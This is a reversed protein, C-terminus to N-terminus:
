EVYGLSRLREMVDAPTDPVITEGDSLPAYAEVEIPANARLYEEDFAAEIVEGELERSLPLGMWYLATPAVDLLSAREVWANSQVGPGKMLFVGKPDHAGSFYRAFFFDDTQRTKGYIVIQPNLRLPSDPHATLSFQTRVTLAGGEQVVDFVADGNQFRIESLADALLPLPQEGGPKADILWRREIFQHTVDSSFGLLRLLKEAQIFYQGPLAADAKMGHDSVLIARCDRPLRELIRGFARDAAIYYEEIVHAFRADEKLDHGAFAQPQHYQWFRHGLQDSGYLVFASLDPQHRELMALYLDTQLRVDNLARDALSALEDQGAAERLTVGIMQDVARLGAGRRACELLASLQSFADPPSHLLVSQLCEYDSPWADNSRAIWSPVVFAYEDLIPWMALWRFLGVRFGNRQAIDWLRPQRVDARTSFFGTVGHAEPPRGTAISTWLAPSRMPGLSYLNGSAGDRKLGAITPLRGADILPDIVEWTAADLGLIILKPSALSAKPASFLFFCGGIVFPALAFVSLFRKSRFKKYLTQSFQPQLYRAVILAGLRELLIGVILALGISVSFLYVPLEGLSWGDARSFVVSLGIPLWFGVSIFSFLGIRKM